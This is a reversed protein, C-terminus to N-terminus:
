RARDRGRACRDVGATAASRCADCTQKALATRASRSKANRRCRPMRAFVRAFKKRGCLKEVRLKEARVRARAGTCAAVVSRRRSFDIAVAFRTEGFDIACRAADGM